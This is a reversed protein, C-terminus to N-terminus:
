DLTIRIDSWQKLTEEPPKGYSEEVSQPTAGGLAGAKTYNWDCAPHRLIHQFFMHRWFHNVFLDPYQKLTDPAFKEIAEKNLDAMKDYGISFIKGHKRDGILQKLEWVLQSDLRKEWPHGKPYKSRRGKDYVTIIAQDGVVAFDEIMANLTASIRTGTKFMFADVVYAEFDIDRIWHLMENLADKVVFLKAYKGYGKPKGVAVKKGVAVGKSQMFDKLDRKLYYTDKGKRKIISIIEMAEQLTLRDPHKLCWSGEEVLDYGFMTGKCVNKLLNIKGQIYEASLERADLQILWEKVSKLEEFAGNNFISQAIVEKPLEESIVREKLDQVIEPHRALWMSISHPKYAKNFKRLIADRLAKPSFTREEEILKPLVKNLDFKKRL